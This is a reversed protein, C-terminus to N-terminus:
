SRAKGFSSEAVGGSLVASVDRCVTAVVREQAEHTFAGIHPTLIVNDMRSLPGSTPPEAYRVDLAAGAIRNGELARILGTEDVVEGRSTNLFFATPKMSAFREYTFLERTQDTLPVHTTVFDAEALLENLSVLRAGSERVFDATPHIFDDHAIISMGFARARQSVLRGIRGLGIIGLTRRSLEGGTFGGRDWGGSRTDQWAAPIRRVLSLMLGMVLEAVSISNDHPTYSVVVGARTAADTDVNDLGAGARAIIELRPAAEILNAPVPPQNRVILSRAEHLADSLRDPHQWLEPEFAVDHTQRLRTMAEGAINESVVIDSVNDGHHREAAIPRGGSWAVRLEPKDLTDSSHTAQDPRCTVRM